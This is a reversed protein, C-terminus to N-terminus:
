VANLSIDDWKQVGVPLISSKWCTFQTICILRIREIDMIVYIMKKCGMGNNNKDGLSAVGSLIHVDSPLTLSKSGAYV